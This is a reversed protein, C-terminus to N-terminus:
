GRVQHGYDTECDTVLSSHLLEERQFIISRRMNEGTFKYKSKGSQSTKESWTTKRFCTEPYKKHRRLTM